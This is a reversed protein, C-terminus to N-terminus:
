FILSHTQLFMHETRSLTKWIVYFQCDKQINTSVYFLAKKEILDKSGRDM